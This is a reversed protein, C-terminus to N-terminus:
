RNVISLIQAAALAATETRLRHPGLSVQLFGAQSSSALEEESFDGEPGILVIIDKGKKAIDALHVAPTDALHAVFKQDAAEKLTLSFPVTNGITPLWAKLSQKMASVAVKQLREDNIKKRESHGSNFFSIRNVGIETAKEVLWEM